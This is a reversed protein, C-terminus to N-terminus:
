FAKVRGHWANLEVQEPFDLPMRGSPELPNQVISEIDPPEDVALRDHRVQGLHIRPRVVEGVAQAQEEVAAGLEIVRSESRHQEVVGVAQPRGQLGIGRQERVPRRHDARERGQDVGRQQVHGGLVPMQLGRAHQERRAGIDVGGGADVFVPEVPM